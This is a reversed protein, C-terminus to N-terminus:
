REIHGIRDFLIKKAPPHFEEAGGASIAPFTANKVYASKPAGAYGERSNSPVSTSSLLTWDIWVL